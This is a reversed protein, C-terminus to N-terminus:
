QAVLRDGKAPHLVKARIVRWLWTPELSELVTTACTVPVTSYRFEARGGILVGKSSTLRKQKSRQVAWWPTARELEPVNGANRGGKAGHGIIWVALQVTM